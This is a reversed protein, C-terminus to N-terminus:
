TRGPPRPPPASIPAGNRARRKEEEYEVLKRLSEEVVKSAEIGTATAGVRGAEGPVVGARQRAMQIAQENILQEEITTGTWAKGLAARLVDLIRAQEFRGERTLQTRAEQRLEEIRVNVQGREARALAEDADRAAQKGADSGRYEEIAKSTFDAPTEAAYGRVRAFGQAEVGRTMFGMVGRRERLDPAYEALMTDLDEGAAQRETLRRSAAELMQMPTMGEKLGLEEGRGKLQVDRIAKLANEVGTEEEGPMAESMIALSQAAEEPSFGRSMIRSMQPLLQAVPTPARELTKFVKGYRDMLSQVDQPGQSFQLLGGGLGAAESPAIGRAKAFEAIQAQYEEAQRADLRQQDGELYAGARSQFEEQFKVWEEPKLNARAAAQVQGLAFQNQNAKGTLAAVQQMQRRLEIFERATERTFEAARRLQDAIAGGVREVAQIAIQAKQIAALERAFGMAEKGARGAASGAKDMAAATTDGARAGAQEVAHLGTVAKGTEFRVPIILDPADM